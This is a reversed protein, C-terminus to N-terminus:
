PENWPNPSVEPILTWELTNKGQAYRTEHPWIVEWCIIRESSEEEGLHQVINQRPSTWSGTFFLMIQLLFFFHQSPNCWKM